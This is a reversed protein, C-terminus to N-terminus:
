FEKTKKNVDIVICTLLTAISALFIFVIGGSVIGLNFIAKIALGILFIDAIVIIITM